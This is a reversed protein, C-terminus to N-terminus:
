RRATAFDQLSTSHTSNHFMQWRRAGPHDVASLRVLGRGLHRPGEAAHAPADYRLLLLLDALVHPNRMLYGHSRVLDADPEVETVDVLDVNPGGPLQDDNVGTLNLRGVRPLREGVDVARVFRAMALVQDKASTYVTVRGAALHADEEIFRCRFVDFDIDPAAMVLHGLKLRRRAEVSGHKLCLERLATAAIMAGTSHTVIHVREVGAGAGSPLEGLMEIFDRFRSVTCEAAERDAFYTAANRNAPWTYVVPIFDDGLYRGLAAAAHVADDYTNNYGHVYILVQRPKQNPNPAALASLFAERSLAGPQGCKIAALLEGPTTQDGNLPRLTVPTSGFVLEAARSAASSQLSQRDSAFLVAADGGGRMESIREHYVASPQFRGQCGACAAAVLLAAAISRGPKWFARNM